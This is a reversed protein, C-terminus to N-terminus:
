DITTSPNSKWWERVAASTRAMEWGKAIDIWYLDCRPEGTAPLHIMIAKDQRVHKRLDVGWGTPETYRRGHAYVAMQVSAGHSYKPADAGTKIDAVYLDGNYGVIRDFTGASLIEVCGVFMEIAYMDLNFQKCTTEYADLAQWIRLDVDGPIPKGEDLMQTFDHIATGLNAGRSSGAVELATEVIQDLSDRDDSKAQVKAILDSRQALGIAVQRQKWLGLNYKDEIANSLTSARTYPHVVGSVPHPLLPRDWRDRKVQKGTDDMQRM